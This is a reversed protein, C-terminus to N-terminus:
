GKSFIVFRRQLGSDFEIKEVKVGCRRALEQVDADSYEFVCSAHKDHLEDQAKLVIGASPEAGSAFFDASVIGGKRLLFKALRLLWEANRMNQHIFFYRGVCIDAWAALKQIESLESLHLYRCNAPSVLQAIYLALRSYDIGVYAQCVRSIIKGLLGPGCGFEVIKSRLVVQGRLWVAFAYDDFPKYHFFDRESFTRLLAEPLQLKVAGPDSLDRFYKYAYDRHLYRIWEKDWRLTKEAIDVKFAPTQLFDLEEEQQMRSELAVPLCGDADAAPVGATSESTLLRPLLKNIWGDLARGWGFKATM